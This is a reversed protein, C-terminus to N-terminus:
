PKAQNTVKKQQPLKPKLPQKVFVGNSKKQCNQKSYFHTKAFIGWIFEL